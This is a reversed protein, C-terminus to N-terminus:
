VSDQGLNLIVDSVSRSISFRWTWENRQNNSNSTTTNFYYWVEFAVQLYAFMDLVDSSNNFTDDSSGPYFPRWLIKLCWLSDDWSYMFEHYIRIESSESYRIILMLASADRLFWGYSDHRAHCSSLPHKSPRATQTTSDHTIPMPLHKSDNSITGLTGTQILRTMFSSHHCLQFILTWPSGASGFQRRRRRWRRRERRKRRKRKERERERERERQTLLFQDTENRKEEKKRKRKEVKKEEKKEKEKRLRKEKIEDTLLKAPDVPLNGRQESIVRGSTMRVSLTRHWVKNNRSIDATRVNM